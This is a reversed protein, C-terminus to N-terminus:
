HLPCPNSGQDPFIGCAVSRSPGQAVVASGTRRSGTGRSSLPRSLSLGACRLSSHGGSAAVLPLERVSVLVWCLWIFLYYNFTSIILFVFCFQCELPPLYFLFLVWLTIFYFLAPTLIITFPQLLYKTPHESLTERSFVTWSHDSCCSPFRSASIQPFLMGPLSFLWNLSGSHSCAQHTLPVSLLCHPQLTLSHPTPSYSINLSTPPSENRQVQVHDKELCWSFDTYM